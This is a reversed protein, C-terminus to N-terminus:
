WCCQKLFAECLVPYGWKKKSEVIPLSSVTKEVTLLYEFINRIILSFSDVLYLRSDRGYLFFEQHIETNEISRFHLLTSFSVRGFLPNKLRVQRMCPDWIHHFYDALPSEKYHGFIGTV